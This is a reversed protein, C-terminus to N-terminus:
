NLTVKRITSAKSDTFYLENEGKGLALGFAYVDATLKTGDHGDSTGHPGAVVSLKGNDIRKIYGNDAIYMTRSDKNLIICTIRSFTLDTFIRQTVGGPTYKYLRTGTSFYIVKNYGIAIAPLAYGRLSTGSTELGLKTGDMPVRPGQIDGYQDVNHQYIANTSSYYFIDTYPDRALVARATYTFYTEAVYDGNAKFIWSEDYPDGYFEGDQIVHVDGNKFSVGIYVPKTLYIDDPGHQLTLASVDGTPSIKRIANNNYDAVYLTGDNMMQIGLPYNFRANKGTGNTNGVAYPSGYLTEVTYISAALSSTDSMLMESENLSAAPKVEQNKKCGTSIAVLAIALYTLKFKM